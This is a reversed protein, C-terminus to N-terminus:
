PINRALVPGIVRTVSVPLRRWANIALRYKPNDPNLEPLEGSRGMLYEWHLTHPVAKWQAKYKQNGSDVTSRGLHFDRYGQRCAREILSWYLFYNVRGPARDRLSSTWMGEVSDRFFAVSATAVPKGRYTVLSIEMSDGFADLMNDFFSRAYIPTGLNRWGESLVKYYEKCLSQQGYHIEFEGLMAGKVNRRHKSKFRGWVVEPDPDLAVHMSVKHTKCPLGLSSRRTHRLELYDAGTEEVLRAAEACLAREADAGDAIIGGFNVFPMSCLISGFLRSKVHVIPLVGVTKGEDEAMLYYTAHGFSREMVGKWEIRHYFNAGPHSDVYEAWDRERGDDLITVNM